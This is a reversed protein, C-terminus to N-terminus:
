WVAKKVYKNESILDELVNTNIDKTISDKQAIYVQITHIIDLESFKKSSDKNFYQISISTDSYKYLSDLNALVLVFSTFISISFFLKLINNKKRM